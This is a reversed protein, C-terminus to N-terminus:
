TDDDWDEDLPLYQPPSAGVSAVVRPYRLGPATEGVTVVRVEHYWNDGFDYWYWFVRGVKPGLTGLRVATMSGAPKPEDFRDPDDFVFPLVYREAHRDGPRPGLHFESLHCDDWREFADFIARHLQNLTQDSRLEITRSVVPNTRIFDHAMLGDVITVQLSFLTRPM